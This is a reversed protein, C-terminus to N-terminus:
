CTSIRHNMSINLSLTIMEHLIEWHHMLGCECSAVVESVASKEWLTFGYDYHFQPSRPCSDSALLLIHMAQAELMLAGSALYHIQKALPSIGFCVEPFWFQARQVFSSM